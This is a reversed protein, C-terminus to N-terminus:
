CGSGPRVRLRAREIAERNLVIQVDGNKSEREMWDNTADDVIDFLEDERIGLQIERAHAYRDSFGERNELTWAIVTSKSPLHEAKCISHLSEGNALRQLIEAAIAETYVTPRGHPRKDARDAPKTDKSPRVAKKPKRAMSNGRKSM